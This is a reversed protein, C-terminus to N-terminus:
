SLWRRGGRDLLEQAAVRGIYEADTRIGTKDTKLVETGDPAAIVAALRIEGDAIRAYAGAPVTCGANLTKQFARECSVCDATDTDNLVNLMSRTENDEDRAELALAGQGPAPVSIEISLRETIRGAFGLRELGACALVIADYHGEDLKRLRTDLNGRLPELSLDPRAARIQAQRRPSSTGVKAGNPLEGFTLGGSVMADRPDERKPISALLLGNPLESPMDKLSHVAFEIRGALLAEEIEKVFMGKTGVAEFAVGAQLDGTTKIVVTEFNLAPHAARL